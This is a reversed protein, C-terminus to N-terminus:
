RGNRDQEMLKAIQERTPAQGREADAGSQLGDLFESPTAAWFCAPAWGLFRAAIPWCTKATEAFGANMSM